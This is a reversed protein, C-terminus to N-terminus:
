KRLAKMAEHVSKELTDNLNGSNMPLTISLGLRLTGIRWLEGGEIQGVPKGGAVIFYNAKEYRKTAIELARNGPNTFRVGLGPCPRAGYEVAVANFQYVDKLTVLPPEVFWGTIDKTGDASRFSFEKANPAAVEVTRYIAFAPLPAKEEAPMAAAISWFLATFFLHRM